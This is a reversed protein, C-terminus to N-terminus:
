LVDADIRQVTVEIELEGALGGLREDVDHGEPAAVDLVLMYVPHDPEGIVRAVLDVINVGAEALTEAVRYVIGPRDSGYVSITHTPAPIDVARPDLPRATIVVGLRRAVPRLAEELQAADVDTAGVLLMMAFHSRLITCSVDELNCRQEFLVKTVGVVIGPRDPGVVAVAILRREDV